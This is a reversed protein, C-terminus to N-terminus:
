QLKSDAYKCLVSSYEDGLNIAYINKHQVFAPDDSYVGSPTCAKLLVINDDSSKVYGAECDENASVFVTQGSKQICEFLEKFNELQLWGFGDDIKLGNYILISKKNRQSQGCNIKEIRSIPIISIGDAHFDDIEIIAVFLESLAVVIGNYKDNDGEDDVTIEIYYNLKLAYEFDSKEM